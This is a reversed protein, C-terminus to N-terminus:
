RCLDQSFIDRKRNSYRWSGHLSHSMRLAFKCVYSTLLEMGFKEFRWNKWVQKRCIFFRFFNTATWACPVIKMRLVIDVLLMSSTAAAAGWALFHNWNYMYLSLYNRLCREFLSKLLQKLSTVFLRTNRASFAPKSARTRVTSAGTKPIRNASRLFLKVSGGCRLYTCINRTLGYLSHKQM